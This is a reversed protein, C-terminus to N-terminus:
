HRRKQCVLRIMVHRSSSTGPQSSSQRSRLSPRRRSPNTKTIACSETWRPYELEPWNWKTRMSVSSLLGGGFCGLLTSPFNWIVPRRRRESADDMLNKSNLASPRNSVMFGMSWASFSFCLSRILSLLLSLSRSCRIVSLYQFLPISAISFYPSRPPEIHRRM